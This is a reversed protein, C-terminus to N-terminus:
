MTHWVLGARLGNEFANLIM